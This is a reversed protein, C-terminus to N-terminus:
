SKCYSIISEVLKRGAAILTDTQSPSISEAIIRVVPETGSPRILLWSDAFEIRLGDITNKHPQQGTIIMQAPSIDKLKAMVSQKLKNPCQIKTKKLSLNPLTRIFNRIQEMSDLNNLLYLAAFISDPYYGLEPFIYVGVGEVGLAADIEKALYAVNVDGVKGRIVEGGIGDLAAEMLRGTEVTTAIKKKGTEKVKTVSIFAIMEDFGLLGESDCFIVRDADGDFCIAVDANLQRLHEVTGRLTDEKPEPNRGPFLGDPKDNLSVINYGMWKYIDSAFGSAAGNGPDILLKLKTNTRHPALKDNIFSFYIQKMNEGIKVAGKGQRFTGSAYISEIIQEQITSYGTADKNFLKIGNYEPPNHSATLMIGSDFGMERTLLALAPTPLIDLNTVNVGTSLLGSCVAERVLERSQRTDTALCIEAHLPLMTGLAKGVRECLEITFDKNVIGRIGSTGFLQWTIFSDGEKM